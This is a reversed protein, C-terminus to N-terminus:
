KAPDPSRLIGAFPLVQVNEHSTQPLFYFWIRCMWFVNDSYRSDAVFELAYGSESKDVGLRTVLSLLSFFAIRDRGPYGKEIGKCRRYERIISLWPQKMETIHEYLVLCQAGAHNHGCNECIVKV